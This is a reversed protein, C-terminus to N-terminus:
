MGRRIAQIVCQTRDKAGFKTIVNSVHTKTTDASIVLTSAIEKNSMGNVLCKLVDLERLTLDPLQQADFGAAERVSQPYYTHGSSIALMAKLFDGDTGKGISSVFIVGDSHANIADRVIAQTERHLFLLCKTTPSVKKVRDILPIGYGQELTETVFLLNPKQIQCVNEAEAQTTVSAILSRELFSVFSFSALLLPDGMAAVSTQNTLLGQGQEFAAKVAPSDTRFQM